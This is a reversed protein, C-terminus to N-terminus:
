TFDTIYAVEDQEDEFVSDYDSFLFLRGHMTRWWENIRRRAHKDKLNDFLGDWDIYCEFSMSMLPDEEEFYTFNVLASSDDSLRVTINKPELPRRWLKWFFPLPIGTFRHMILCTPHRDVQRVHWHEPEKFEVDNDHIARAFAMCEEVYQDKATTPDITFYDSYYEIIVKSDQTFEEDTTALSTRMTPMSSVDRGRTTIVRWTRNAITFLQYQGNEDIM